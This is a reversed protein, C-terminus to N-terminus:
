PTDAAPRAPKAAQWKRHPRVGDREELPATAPTAVLAADLDKVPPVAVTDGAKLHEPDPAAPRNAAGLARTYRPSGYYREAISRLSEGRRVVHRPYGPDEDTNM